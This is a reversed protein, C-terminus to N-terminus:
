INLDTNYPLIIKVKTGENEVSKYDISGKHAKIIENSLYVGLGTGGNKTTYFLENIHKINEKSIGCGNDEIIIDYTKENLITKVKIYSNNNKSAEVSNKILNIVVQSLRNYDGEIYVEDDIIENILSINKSHLLPKLSKTIEELMMNVDM